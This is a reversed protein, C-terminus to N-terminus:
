RESNEYVTEGKIITRLVHYNDDMIVFDSRRGVEIKGRDRIGLCSAPNECFIQAVEEKSLGVRNRALRMIQDMTNNGSQITGKEDRIFGDKAIIVRGNKFHYEGEPLGSHSSLDTLGYINEIGKVKILFKAWMPSVHYGDLTLQCQIRDDYMIGVDPGDIRHHMYEFGNFMHTTHDLGHDAAEIMCQASAKTYGAEVHIQPYQTIWDLWEMSGPLEPALSILKLDSLDNDMIELTHEKKPLRDHDHNFSSHHEPNMYAGELHFFAPDAGKIDKRIKRILRVCKVYDEESLDGITPLVTTVGNETVKQCIFRAQTEPDGYDEWTDEKVNASFSRLFGGHIHCDIIGAYLDHGKADIVEEGKLGTGIELIGSEDFRVDTKQFKGDIFVNANKIIM